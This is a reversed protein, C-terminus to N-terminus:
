YNSPTLYEVESWNYHSIAMVEVVYEYLSPDGHQVCYTNYAVVGYDEGHCNLVLHEVAKKKTAKIHEEPAENHITTHHTFLKLRHNSRDM